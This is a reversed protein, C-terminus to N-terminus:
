SIKRLYQDRRKLEAYNPYPTHTPAISSGSQIIMPLKFYETPKKDHNDIGDTAHTGGYDYAGAVRMYRRPRNTTADEDYEDMNIEQKALPPKRSIWQPTPGRNANVKQKYAECHPCHDCYNSKSDHGAITITHLQDTYNNPSNLAHGQNTKLADNRGSADNKGQISNRHSSGRDPEKESDSSNTNGASRVIRSNRRRNSSTRSYTSTNTHVRGVQQSHAPASPQLQSNSLSPANDRNASDESLSSEADEQDNDPDEHSSLNENDNDDSGESPAPSPMKPEIKIPAPKKNKGGASGM